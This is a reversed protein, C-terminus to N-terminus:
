CKSSFVQIQFSKKFTTLNLKAQRMNKYNFYILIIYM